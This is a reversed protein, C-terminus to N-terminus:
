VCLTPLFQKITNIVQDIIHKVDQEVKHLRCLWVCLYECGGSIWLKYYYFQVKYWLGCLTVICQLTLAVICITVYM